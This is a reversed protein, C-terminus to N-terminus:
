CKCCGNGHACAKGMQRLVRHSAWQSSLLLGCGLLNVPSHYSHLIHVPIGPLQVHVNVLVILLLGGGGWAALLPKRHQLFNLLLAGGGVPAVFWLACAHSVDQLWENCGNCGGLGFTPGLAAQVGLLAPLITCDLACLVSAFVSIRLLADLMGSESPPEPIEAAAALTLEGGRLQGGAATKRVVPLTPVLAPALTREPRHIAVSKSRTHVPQPQPFSLANLALVTHMLLAM